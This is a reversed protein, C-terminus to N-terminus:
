RLGGRCSGPLSGARRISLCVASVPGLSALSRATDGRRNASQDLTDFSRGRASSEYLGTAACQRRRPRSRSRSLSRITPSADASHAGAWARVLRPRCHGLLRGCVRFAARRSCRCYTAVTTEESWFTDRRTRAAEFPVSRDIPMPHEGSGGDAKDIFFPSAAAADFVNPM